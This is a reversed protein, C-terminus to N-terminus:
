TNTGPTGCRSDWPGWERRRLLLHLYEDGDVMELVDLAAADLWRLIDDRDPYYHYGVGDFMEGPVVPHGAARAAEFELRVAEEDPLEVTLYLPAQRVWGGVEV